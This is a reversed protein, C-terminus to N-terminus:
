YQKNYELFNDHTIKLSFEAEYNVVVPVRDRCSIIVYM